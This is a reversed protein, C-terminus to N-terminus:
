VFSISTRATIGFPSFFIEDSDTLIDNLFRCVRCLDRKGYSVIVLVSPDPSREKGIQGIERSSLSKQPKRRRDQDFVLGHKM